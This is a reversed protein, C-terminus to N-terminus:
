YVANEFIYQLSTYALRLTLGPKLIISKTKSKKMLM